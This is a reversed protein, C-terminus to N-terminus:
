GNFNGGSFTGPAPLSTPCEPTPTTVPPPPVAPPLVVPPGIVPTPTVTPTPTTAICACMRRRIAAIQATSFKSKLVEVARFVNEDCLCALDAFEGCGIGVIVEEFTWNELKKISENM